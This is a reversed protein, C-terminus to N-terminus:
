GFPISSVVGPVPMNPQGLVRSHTEENCLRSQLNAQLGPDSGLPGKLAVLANRLQMLRHLPLVHIYGVHVEDRPPAACDDRSVNDPM